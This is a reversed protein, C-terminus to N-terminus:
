ILDFHKLGNVIGHNDNNTTIFEAHEKVNDKGNGMVVPHDVYDLMPIDNDGDGFAYTPIGKLGATQILQEIGTAKSAGHDVIDISFPSNRFFTLKDGFEKEYLKDKDTNTVFMMDIPHEHWYEKDVLKPIPAHVRKCAEILLDDHASSAKGHQDLVTISNGNKAAFDALKDIVNPDIVRSFVKKNQYMGYDGNSAVVTNIKTKQLTDPIEYLTRGTAIIPLGGHERIQDMTAAVEDNIKSNNDFLTCDLDFFLLYKYM